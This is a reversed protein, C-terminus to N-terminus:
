QVTIQREIVNFMGPVISHDKDLLELKITHRGKSFGYMYYPTWETLVGQDVGDVSIRVKFGDASLLCNTLYFDLLIPARASAPYTGQPENYTLYPGSLDVNLSDARSSDQFYFIEADFCQDGTLAEGFSRAPFARIVHQGPQIRFPLHFSLIKDYYERNEDFSDEVSQDLEIFPENDIIVRVTQGKPSNYLEKGRENQTVIGLPYGELRFQFNIPSRRKNEYPRPFVITLDVTEPEPTASVPVIRLSSSKSPSAVTRFLYLASLPQTVVILLALLISKTKM